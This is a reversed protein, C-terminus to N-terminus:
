GEITTYPNFAAGGYWESLFSTVFTLQIGALAGEVAFRLRRVQRETEFRVLALVARQDAVHRTDVRLPLLEYAVTWLASHCQRDKLPPRV